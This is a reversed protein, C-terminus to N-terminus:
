RPETLTDSASTKPANQDDSGGGHGWQKRKNRISVCFRSTERKVDVARDVICHYPIIAPGEIARSIGLAGKYITTPRRSRGSLYPARGMSPYIGVTSTDWGIESGLAQQIFISFRSRVMRRTKKTLLHVLSSVHSQRSRVSLLM